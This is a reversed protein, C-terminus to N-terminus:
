IASWICLYAYLCDLLFSGIGRPLHYEILLLGRGDRRRVPIGAHLCGTVGGHPHFTVGRKNKFSLSARLLLVWRSAMWFM